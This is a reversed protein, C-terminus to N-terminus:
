KMRDRLQFTRRFWRVILLLCAPNGIMAVVPGQWYAVSDSFYPSWDQPVPTGSYTSVWRYNFRANTLMMLAVWWVIVQVALVALASAHWRRRHGPRRTAGILALVSIALWIFWQPEMHILRWATRTYWEAADSEYYGRIFHELVAGLCALAAFGTQISAFALAAYDFRSPSSPTRTGAYDLATLGPAAGAPSSSDVPLRKIPVM